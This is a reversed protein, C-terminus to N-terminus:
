GQVLSAIGTASEYAPGADWPFAETIQCAIWDATSSNTVSIWVLERRDVRVIIFGYLLGFALTSVVFPGDGRDRAHDRLFTWWSQGSPRRAPEGDVERRDIPSRSASKLVRWPHASGGLPPERPENRLPREYRHTQPGGGRKWSKM